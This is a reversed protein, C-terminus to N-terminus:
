IEKTVKNVKYMLGKFSHVMAIATTFVRYFFNLKGPKWKFYDRIEEPSKMIDKGLVRNVYGIFDDSYAYEGSMLLVLDHQRISTAKELAERFSNNKFWKVDVGLSIAYCVMSTPYETVVLRTQNLIWFLNTFHSDAFFSDRRSGLTFVQIKEQLDPYKQLIAAYDLYYLVIAKKVVKSDIANAVFNEMELLATENSFTSHNGYVWLEEYLETGTKQKQYLGNREMIELFYLWSSGISHFNTWNRKKALSLVEDNWVYTTVLNNKWFDIEPLAIWGHQYRGQLSQKQSVYAYEQFVSAHGFDYNEKEGRIISYTISKFRNFRFALGNFV